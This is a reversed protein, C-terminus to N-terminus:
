ALRAFGIAIRFYIADQKFLLLRSRQVFWKFGKIAYRKVYQLFVKCRSPVVSVLYAPFFSGLNPTKQRNLLSRDTISKGKASTMLDTVGFFISSYYHRAPNCLSVPSKQCWPDHSVREM